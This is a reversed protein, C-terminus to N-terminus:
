GAQFEVPFKGENKELHWEEAIEPHTQALSDEKFFDKGACYPCGGARSATKSNLTSQWTHKPDKKCVWWIKQKGSASVASPRLPLNWYPHWEKILEPHTKDLRKM